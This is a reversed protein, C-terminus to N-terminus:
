SGSEVALAPSVVRQVHVELHQINGFNYRSTGVVEYRDGDDPEFRIYAGPAPDARLRLYVRHDYVEAGAQNIQAVERATLPQILGPLLVTVPDGPVPQGYDDLSGSSTPTVLALSHTLSPM